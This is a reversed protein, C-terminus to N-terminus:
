CEKKNLFDVIEDLNKAVNKEYSFSRAIKGVYSGSKIRKDMFAIICKDDISRVGIGIAQKLAMVMIPISYKSFSNPEKGLKYMIPDAPSPFPLKDIVVCRLSEGPVDIGTFFSRTAVLISDIDNRFADAIAKNQLQGQMLVKIKNERVSSNRQVIDHIFKMNSNSTCLFLIGGGVVDVIENVIEYLSDQYKKDNGNVCGKPMYWLQQTALDFPSEGIFSDVEKTELLDLGLEAKIYDFTGDISLTASALVISTIEENDFFGRKIIENVKIHKKAFKIKTKTNEIYYAFQKQLEPVKRGDLFSVVSYIKDLTREFEKLCAWCDDKFVSNYESMDEMTSIAAKFPLFCNEAAIKVIEENEIPTIDTIMIVNDYKGLSMIMKDEMTQIAAILIELKSYFLFKNGSDMEISDSIADHKGILKLLKNKSWVFQSSSFNEEAFARFVEAAEHAEDMILYDYPPLVSGGTKWDSFLIHYNTVIIDSKFARAKHTQYFCKEFYQCRSGMCEGESTCTIQSLDSYEIKFELDSFDGNSEGSWNYIAKYVGDSLASPNHSIENFKRMCLFNGKGKLLSYTPNKGTAKGIIKSVMPLDQVILQESLAIGNTAIIAKGEGHEVLKLYLPVLYAFTKGFGCPGELIMHRGEGMSKYINRAAKIQSQRPIYNAKFSKIIGDEEFISDLIM